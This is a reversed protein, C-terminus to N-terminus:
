QSLSHTLLHPFQLCVQHCFHSGPVEQRDLPYSEASASCPPVLKLGPRPALIKCTVHYHWFGVFGVCVVERWVFVFWGFLSVPACNRCTGTQESIGAARQPELGLVISSVQRPQHPPSLSQKGGKSHKEPQLSRTYGQSKPLHILRTPILM